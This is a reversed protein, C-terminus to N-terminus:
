PSPSEAGEVGAPSDDEVPVPITIPDGIKIKDPNKIQPNAALLEEVTVGFKKAIRSMTDGKAVVYVQVTPAPPDTPSPEETVG